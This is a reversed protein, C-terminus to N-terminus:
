GIVAFLLRAGGSPYNYSITTGATINEIEYLILQENKNANVIKKYEKISGQSVTISLTTLTSRNQYAIVYGKKVNKEFEYNGSFSSVGSGSEYSDLYLVECGGSGGQLIEQFM